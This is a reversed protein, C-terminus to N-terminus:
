KCSSKQPTKQAATTTQNTDNSFDELAYFPKKYKYPGKSRESCCFSDWFSRKKQSKAAEKMKELELQQIKKELTKTKIMLKEKKIRRMSTEYKQTAYNADNSPRIPSGPEKGPSQPMSLKKPEQNNEM